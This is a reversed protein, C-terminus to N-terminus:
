RHSANLVVLLTKLFLPLVILSEFSINMRIQISFFNLAIESFVISDTCKPKFTFIIAM